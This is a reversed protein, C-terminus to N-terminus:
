RTSGWPIAPMSWEMVLRPCAEIALRLGDCLDCPELPSDGSDARTHLALWHDFDKSWNGVIWDNRDAFTREDGFDDFCGAAFRNSRIEGM